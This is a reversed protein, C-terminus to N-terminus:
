REIISGMMRASFAWPWTRYIPFISSNRLGMRPQASRVMPVKGTSRPVPSVEAM